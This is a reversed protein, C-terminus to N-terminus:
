ELPHFSVEVVQGCVKAFASHKTTQPISRLLLLDIGDLWGLQKPRGQCSVQEPSKVPQDIHKRTKGDRMDMRQRLHSLALAPKVLIRSHHERGAEQGQTCKAAQIAIRHRCESFRGINTDRQERHFSHWYM